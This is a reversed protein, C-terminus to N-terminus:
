VLVLVQELVQVKDGRRNYGIYKAMIIVRTVVIISTEAKIIPETGSIIPSYTEKM